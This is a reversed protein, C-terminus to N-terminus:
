LISFKKSNTMWIIIMRETVILSSYAVSIRQMTCVIVTVLAWKMTTPKNSPKQHCPAFDHKYIGEWPKDGHCLPQLNMIGELSVSNLCHKCKLTGFSESHNRNELWQLEHEGTKSATCPTGKYNFLDFGEKNIEQKDLKASFYRNWPIDSIHGNPCILVMSVQELLGYVMNENEPLHEGYQKRNTKIYPDRPPAFYKMDGGNCGKEHWLKAWKELPLLLHNKHSYFWRPFVIAPITFTSEKLGESTPHSEKYRVNLPHEEVGCVNYQNLTIHPIAVLCKLNTMGESEKLFGIFRNDEIIETGTETAIKKFDSVDSSHSKLFEAVANVFAWNTSSTPMIFGGWKTAVIAGVGANSSLVKYKGIGQNYQKSTKIEM